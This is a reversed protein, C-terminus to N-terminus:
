VYEAKSIVAEGYIIFRVQQLNARLGDVTLEVYGDSFDVFGCGQWNTGSISHQVAMRHPNKDDTTLAITVAGEDGVEISDSVMDGGVLSFNLSTAM